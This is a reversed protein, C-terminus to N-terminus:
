ICSYSLGEIKDPQVSALALNTKSGIWELLLIKHELPRLALLVGDNLRDLFIESRSSDNNLLM